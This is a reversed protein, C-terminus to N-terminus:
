FTCEEADIYQLLMPDYYRTKGDSPIMCLRSEADWYYGKFRWPQNHLVWLDVNMHINGQLEGLNRIRHEGRGDYVYQGILTNGSFVKSINGVGDRTFTYNKGACELGCVDELDYFYRMNRGDSRNEGLIKTGDLFYRSTIGYAVKRFRV